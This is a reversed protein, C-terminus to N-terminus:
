DHVNRFETPSIGTQSKFFKSFHAPDNFNLDYAIEKSSSGGNLQRKAELILQKYILSSVSEGTRNHVIENLQKESINLQSTYDKVKRLERFSGKLLRRFTIYTSTDASNSIEIKASASQMCLLVMETLLNEVLAEKLEKDSNFVAWARESVNTLIPAIDSPFLYNPAFEHVDLCIHDFLFDEIMKNSQFLGVDFLFVFGNSSLARKVQHVQGPAVIHVSNSEIKFNEFDIMHNGDGKEFVFFEFYNHRHARTSDYDTLRELKHIVIKSKQKESREHIPIM